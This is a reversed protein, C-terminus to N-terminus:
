RRGTAVSLERNRSSSSLALTITHSEGIVLLRGSPSFGHAYLREVRAVQTARRKADVLTVRATAHTASKTVSWRDATRLPLQFRTQIGGGDGAIAIVQGSSPGIGEVRETAPDYHDSDHDRALKEGSVADLVGLGSPTIAYLREEADFGLAWLGRIAIRIPGEWPLHLSATSGAWSAPSYCEDRPREVATTSALVLSRHVRTVNAFFL